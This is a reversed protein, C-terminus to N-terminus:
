GDYVRKGGRDTRVRSGGTIPLGSSRQRQTTGSTPPRFCSSPVRRARGWRQAAQRWIARDRTEAGPRATLGSVAPPSVLRPEVLEVQHQQHGHVRPEAALGEHGLSVGPVATPLEVASAQAPGAPTFDGRCRPLPLARTAAALWRRRAVTHEHPGGRWRRRQGPVQLAAALMVGGDEQGGGGPRKGPESTLYRVHRVSTM